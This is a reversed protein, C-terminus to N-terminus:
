FSARVRGALRVRKRPVDSRACRFNCALLPLRCGGSLLRRGNAGGAGPERAVEGLEITTNPLGPSDPFSIPNRPNLCPSLGGSVRPAETGRTPCLPVSNRGRTARALLSGAAPPFLRWTPYLDGFPSQSVGEPHACPRASLGKWATSRPPSGFLLNHGQSRACMACADRLERTWRRTRRWMAWPATPWGSSCRRRLRRRILRRASLRARCARALEGIVDRQDASGVGSPEPNMPDARPPLCENTTPITVPRSACIAQALEESSARALSFMEAPRGPLVDDRFDKRVSSTGRRGRRLRWSIPWAGSRSTLRPSFYALKDDCNNIDGFCGNALIAQFRAGAIRQLAASSLLYDVVADHVGAGVYHLGLNAFAPAAGRDPSRFILVGLEPDTLDPPLAGYGTSTAPNM